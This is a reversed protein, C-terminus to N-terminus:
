KEVSVQKKRTEHKLDEMGSELHLNVLIISSTCNNDAKINNTQLVAIQLRNGDDTTQIVKKEIVQFM